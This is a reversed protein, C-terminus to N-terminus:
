GARNDEFAEQGAKIRNASYVKAKTGKKRLESESLGSLDFCPRTTPSPPSMLVVKGRNWSENDDDDGDDDVDAIYAVTHTHCSANRHRAPLSGPPSSSSTFINTGFNSLLVVVRLADQQSPESRSSLFRSIRRAWRGADGKEDKRRTMRSGTDREYITVTPATRRRRRRSTLSGEGAPDVYDEEMM